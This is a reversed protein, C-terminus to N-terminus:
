RAAGTSIPLKAIRGNVDTWRWLVWQKYELLKSPIQM